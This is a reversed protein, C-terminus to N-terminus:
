PVIAEYGDESHQRRPGLVANEPFLDYSFPENLDCGFPTV